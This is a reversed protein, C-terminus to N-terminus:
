YLKEPIEEYVIGRLKDFNERNNAAIIGAPRDLPLGKEHINEVIGGAEEVIVIAAAMDWPFLRMEFFLEVRGAALYVLELAAAGFRRYDDSQMYVREIINFCPKALDKNYISAAASMHSHRFDRHSVHIPKGNMYAGKGREAWYMENKYPDYVVGLYPKRDKLLGVSIVSAGLGRIFNSTGDIPDVVWIYESSTDIEDKEEGIFGSGPILELLHNELYKQVAVDASTVFNSENGKQEIVIDEKMLESSKRVIEMIKELM